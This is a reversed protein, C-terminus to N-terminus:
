AGVEYRVFRRLRINEGTQAIENKIMQEVTTGPDRFFPQTLLASATRDGEFDAPAEDPSLFQPNTAAVQIAIERALQKFEPRRSVFDTESLLEVMAAIRGNHHVYTEVLGQDTARGARKEASAVGKERLLEVARKVDGQAEILAKRCDMVGANTLDRLEKVAAATIEM